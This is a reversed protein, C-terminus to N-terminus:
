ESRLSSLVPGRLAAKTAIAAVLLGLVLISAFLPTLRLVPPAGREIAAPAIAILASVTGIALGKLLLSANELVTMFFLHNESYGLVRLLALERRRELVSRLLIAALGATGLLLGLGGLMQFTSLYTNEVRHFEALRAAAFTVDAGYDTLSDEIEEAIVQMNLQPTEALLVSYGEQGPFLKLFNAESMLLSGQFISDSLAGVFRLRVEEDGSPIVFDEGLKRHLVYTLSNADAIVPIAGDDFTKTLLMWPNLQEQESSALSNQFTFRNAQIFSGRPALIQPNKPEYLNLCSADDGPRLRFPEFHVDQLGALNLTRRGETSNPDYAIPALTEVILSYGGPLAAPSDKRFADVSILIFSASAIATM